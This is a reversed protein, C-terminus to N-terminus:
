PGFPTRETWFEIRPHQIEGIGLQQELATRISDTISRRIRQIFIEDDMVRDNVIDMDFNISFSYRPMTYLQVDMFIFVDIVREETRISFLYNM